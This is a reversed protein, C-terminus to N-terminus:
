YIAWSTGVASSQTTLDSDSLASNFLLFEFVYSTSGWRFAHTYDSGLTIGTLNASGVNGTAVAVGNTWVSSSAGNFRVAIVLLSSTAIASSTGIDTGEGALLKESNDKYIYWRDTANTGDVLFNYNGTTSITKVAAVITGTTLPSPLSNVLYSGSNFSVGPKGNQVGTTYDPNSAPASLVLGAVTDTWSLVTGATQNVGTDAVWRYTPTAGGGGGGAAALTNTLGVAPLFNTLVSAMINTNAQTHFDDFTLKMTASANTPLLGSWNTLMQGNLAAFSLTHSGNTDQSAIAEWHKGAAANSWTVTCNTSIILDFRDALAANINTSTTTLWFNTTTYSATGTASLTGGSLSLGSGVAISVIRKDSDHGALTDGTAASNTPANIFNANTMVLLATNVQDVTFSHAVFNSTTLTGTAADYTLWPDGAFSGSNNFQVQGSSGGPTGGGSGWPWANTATALLGAVGSGLGSIGTAIPIGTLGAGNGTLTGTISWNGSLQRSDWNLSTSGLHDKLLWTSWNVSQFGAADYLASSEWNVTQNGTIDYLSRNDFDASIGGTGVAIGNTANMKAAIAATVSANTAVQAPMASLSLNTLGAGNGSIPLGGSFSIYNTDPTFIHTGYFRVTGSSVVPSNTAAIIQGGIFDMTGVDAKALTAASEIDSTDSSAILTCNYLTNSGRLWANDYGSEFTSNYVLNTGGTGPTVFTDTDGYVYVSEITAANTAARLGTHGIISVGSLYNSTTLTVVPVSGSALPNNTITTVGVGYGRLAFRNSLTINGQYKGPGVLMLDGDAMVKVANTITAFPKTAVGKLATADNGNTSVYVIRALNFALANSTTILDNTGAKGAFSATVGAAALANAFTDAKLNAFGGASSYTLLGSTGGAGLLVDIGNTSIGFYPNLGGGAMSIQVQGGIPYVFSTNTGAGNNNAIFPASGIATTVDNTKARSNIDAQLLADAAAWAAANAAISDAVPGAAALAAADASVIFDKGGNTTTVSAYDGAFVENTQGSGTAGAPAYRADSAAASWAYANPSETANTSVVRLASAQLTINTDPVDITFPTLAPPRQIECDYLGPAMNTVTFSGNTDSIWKQQDLAGIASSPNLWSPSILVKRNVVPQTTLDRLNFVVDAAPLHAALLVLALITLLRRM